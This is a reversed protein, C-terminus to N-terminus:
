PHFLTFMLLSKTSHQSIRQAQTLTNVIGNRRGYFYAWKQNDLRHRMHPFFLVDIITRARYLPHMGGRSMKSLAVANEPESESLYLSISGWSLNAQGPVGDHVVNHQHRVRYNSEALLMEWTTHVAMLIVIYGTEKEINGRPSGQQGQKKMSYM